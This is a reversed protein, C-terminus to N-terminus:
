RNRLGEKIKEIVESSTAVRGSYSCHYIHYNRGERFGFLLYEESKTFTPDCNGDTIFTFRRKVKIRGKFVKTVELVVSKNDTYLQSDEPVTEIVKAIIINESQKLYHQVPYMICDCGMVDVQTLLFTLTILTYKIFALCTLNNKM